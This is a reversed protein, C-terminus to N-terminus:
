MELLVVLLLGLEELQDILFKMLFSTLSVKSLSYDLLGLETFDEGSSFPPHTTKFFRFYNNLCNLRFSVFETALRVSGSVVTENLGVGRRSSWAQLVM